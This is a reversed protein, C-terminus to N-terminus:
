EKLIDLLEDLRSVITKPVAGELNFLREVTDLKLNSVLATNCGAAIGAQVDVVGDGVMWSPPLSIEHDQAADLLLGPAPKRCDCSGTFESIAGRGPDPHHPCFRLDDWEGGEAALLEALRDNVADLEEFTLTAKAIGPQNTVVIVMYGLAKVDALFGGAGPILRVQEPRRPSDTTGHTEDYVMENLTGDRDIFIARKVFLGQSRCYKSCFAVSSALVVAALAM